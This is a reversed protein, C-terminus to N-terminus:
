PQNSSGGNQQAQIDPVVIIQINQTSAPSLGQRTAQAAIYAPSQESAITNILDSNPRQLETEQNRLLQIQQNTTVAQGVQSLYLVAMLSILLVSCISLAVPGLRFFFARQKGRSSMTQVMEAQRGKGTRTEKERSM